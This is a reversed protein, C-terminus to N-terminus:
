SERRRAAPTSWSHGTWGFEMVRSEHAAYYTAPVHDGYMTREAVIMTGKPGFTLDSVPNNRQYTASLWPMTIELRAPPIFNGSPDLAISWIENPAAGQYSDMNWISYYLRDQYPHVAWARRGLKAYGLYDQGCGPCKASSASIYPRAPTLPSGNLATASSLNAGHDWTNLIKGTANLHYIQGDNFNSVYFSESACDFTINGLGAHNLNPLQVFATPVGTYNAIKYIQGTGDGIHYPNGVNGTRGTGYITTAAVYINGKDDLTL